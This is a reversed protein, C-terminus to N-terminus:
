ISDVITVEDGASGSQQMDHYLKIAQTDGAKCRAVLAAHVTAYEGTQYKDILAALLQKYESAKLKRYQRQLEQLDAVINFSQEEQAAKVMDLLGSISNEKTPM